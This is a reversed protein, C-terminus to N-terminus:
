SQIWGMVKNMGDVISALRRQKQEDLGEFLQKEYLKMPLKNTHRYRLDSM